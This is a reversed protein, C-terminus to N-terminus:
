TSKVLFNTTEEEVELRDQLGEAAVQVRVSHVAEVPAEEMLLAAERVRIRDRVVKITTLDRTVEVTTLAHTTRVPVRGIILSFELQNQM